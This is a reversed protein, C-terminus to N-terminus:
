SACPLIPACVRANEFELARTRARPGRQEDRPEVQLYAATKVLPAQAEPHEGPKQTIQVTSAERSGLWEPVRPWDPSGAQQKRLSGQDSSGFGDSGLGRLGTRGMLEKFLKSM